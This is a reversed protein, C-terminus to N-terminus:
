GLIEKEAALWDVEPSGEPCGRQQWLEYARAQIEEHTYRALTEEANPEPVAFALAAM